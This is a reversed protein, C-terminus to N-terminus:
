CVRLRRTRCRERVVLPRDVARLTPVFREPLSRKSAAVDEVLEGGDSYHKRVDHDDVAEEVLDGAAIRADIAAVAADAWAFLATGDIHAIARGDLEILPDPRVVQLDLIHGGPRAADIMRSLASV